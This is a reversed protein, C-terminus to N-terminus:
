IYGCIQAFMEKKDIIIHFPKGCGNIMETDLLRDCVEKSSHPPIPENNTKYTGHRFIKCNLDCTRVETYQLCNPCKFIYLNINPDTIDKEIIIKTRDGSM